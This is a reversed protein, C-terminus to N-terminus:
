HVGTHSVTKSILLGEERDLTAPVVLDGSTRANQKPSSIVGIDLDGSGVHTGPEEGARCAPM